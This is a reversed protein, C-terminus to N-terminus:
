YEEPEDHEVDYSHETAFDSLAVDGEGFPQLRVSSPSEPSGAKEKPRNFVDPSLETDVFEIEFADDPIELTLTPEDVLDGEPGLFPRKVGPVEPESEAAAPARTRSPSVGSDLRTPRIMPNQRIEALALKTVYHLVTAVLGPVRHPRAEPVDIAVDARGELRSPGVCLCIVKAGRARAAELLEIFPPEECRNSIALLADFPGICRATALAGAKHLILPDAPFQPGQSRARGVVSLACYEALTHLPGEGVLLVRGGRRVTQVMQDAFPQFVNVNERVIDKQRKAHRDARHRPDAVESAKM